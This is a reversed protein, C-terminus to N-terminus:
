TAIALSLSGNSETKWVFNGFKVECNFAAGDEVIMDKITASKNGISVVKEPTGDQADYFGMETSSINVYFKEDSQGIKLGVDKNFDFYQSINNKQATAVKDVDEWDGPYFSTSTSRARLMCGEGFDGCEDGPALIWLDGKTYSSPKSTHVVNGKQYNSNVWKSGDYVKLINPDKSTDLWMQGTIPQTPESSSVVPDNLDVIMTSTIAVPNESSDRVTFDITLSKSVSEKPVYILPYESDNFTNDYIYKSKILAWKKSSTSYQGLVVDYYKKSSNFCVFYKKEGDTGTINTTIYNGEIVNEDSIHVQKANDDIGEVKENDKYLEIYIISHTDNSEIINDGDFFKVVATYITTKETLSVHDSYTIGDYKMECKLRGFAYYKSLDVLLSTDIAGVIDEYQESDENWCKWQYVGDGSMSVTVSVMDGNQAVASKPQSLITLSTTLCLTVTDSRVSFGNKDTVICYVRRGSVNEDMKCSYTSSTISSKSFETDGKNAFYWQYTLESGEATVTTKAENNKSVAVSSPQKIIKVAGTVTFTAIDSTVSNDNEDTIICYVRRGSSGEDLQFEYTATTISSDIFTASSGGPYTTYWKYKLGDGSATVTTSVIDGRDGVVDNPQKAIYPTSGITVTDTTVSNGNDDTIECYIQRGARDSNMEMSYTRSTISSKKFETDNANKFYWQYSLNSGIKNGAKFAATNLKISQIDSSFEFGDTSYIQFDIADTGSDGYVGIIAPETNKSTNDTYIIKEYNWLYKETQTLAPVVTHWTQDYPFDPTQTTLYYNQVDSIGKGAEGVNYVGIIIPDSLDPEGISYVVEEYNWLYKNTSNMTQVSETWGSTETSVGADKNTALYWEKIEIIKKHETITIQNSAKIAM